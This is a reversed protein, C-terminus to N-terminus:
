GRLDEGSRTISARGGALVRESWVGVAEEVMCEVNGEEVGEVEGM